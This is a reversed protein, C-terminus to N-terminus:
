GGTRLALSPRQPYRARDITAVPHQADFIRGDAQLGIRSAVVGSGARFTRMGRERYNHASQLLMTTKGANM